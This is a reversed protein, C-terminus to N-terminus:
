FLSKGIFFVSFDASTYNGYKDISLCSYNGEESLSVEATDTTRVLETSNRILTVYIPIFGIASCWLKAGVFARVVPAPDALMIKPLATLSHVIIHVIM